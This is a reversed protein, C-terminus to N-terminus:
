GEENWDAPEGPEWRQAEIIRDANVYELTPKGLSKLFAEYCDDCLREGEVMLVLYSFTKGCKCTPNDM